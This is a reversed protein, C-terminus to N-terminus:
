LCCGDITRTSPQDAEPYVEAGAAGRAFLLEFYYYALWIDRGMTEDFNVDKDVRLDHLM